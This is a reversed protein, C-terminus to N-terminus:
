SAIYWSEKLIKFDKNEVVRVYLKHTYRIARNVLDYVNYKYRFSHLPAYNLMVNSVHLLM